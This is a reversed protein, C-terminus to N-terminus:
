IGPEVVATVTVAVVAVFKETIDSPALKEMAESVKLPVPVDLEAPSFNHEPSGTVLARVILRTPPIM